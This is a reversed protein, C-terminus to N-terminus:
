HRLLFENSNILAHQLDHLGATRDNVQTLHREVLEMEAGSPRRSLTALYVLEIVEPTTKGEDVWRQLLGARSKVKDLVSGNNILQMVQTLSPENDRACECTSDRVPKAFASLFTHEIGGEALEVARTGSPYGPFAEAVGTAQSIADFIQEASHMRVSAQIFYRDPNAAQPSQSDPAQSSLQYTHSNLIVRVMPKIRYGQRTFDDALARLLDPNSPPNTLRFDDVPEVIGRGLLHYWIRNVVSAAFFPNDPRTIWDALSARRDDDPGLDGAPRGFAAPPLPKNTLPHRVEGQRDLYVVEDDLQFQKGKFKVRAFYAALSHYDNQTISEFPHNHCKACGIRVGLFLQSMSEGMEEPTRAVRFFNAAPKHLTNGLSTLTERVFQDFPRDEAFREVLYRHFSHVGKEGITVPSGRMLDAWKLAWFQAFEDRELLQDILRVRRQPDKSALFAQAERVTPLVGICDLYVRRLFVEDSAEAAPLLQLERQKSFVFRDVYNAESRPPSAFQPDHRIYSIRAMSFQDLYRALVATEATRQFEVLGDNSVTTDGTNSTTFVTLDTVDRSTGDDFHALAILQQRPHGEQLRRLAPLVELRAVKRALTSDHCGEAIWNLLTRYSTDTPRFRQGGLHPVQASGKLLLLSEEPVVLNTRRAGTERTLTQFDLEPLFGRLSLRFGNKGQPSGHCAGQNCGARGLAAIAEIRFAVPDPESFGAVTVQAKAELNGHRVVITAQGDGRPVVWGDSTVLAVYPSLSQYRAEHSLDAEGPADFRGTVLLMQRARAGHLEFQAPAVELERPPVDAGRAVGLVGSVLLCLTSVRALLNLSM